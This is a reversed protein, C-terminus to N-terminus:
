QKLRSTTLGACVLCSKWLIVKIARCPRVLFFLPKVTLKDKTGFGTIKFRRTEPFAQMFCNIKMMRAPRAQNWEPDLFVEDGIVAWGLYDAVGDRLAQKLKGDAARVSTSSAPLEVSFLDEKSHKLLDTQFVRLYAYSWGVQKGSRDNTPIRYFRAHHITSGIAAFGGRVPAYVADKEKSGNFSEPSTAMFEVIDNAGLRRGHVCIERNPNKPLGIAPEYDPLSTLATWLAPTSAKDISFSSMESGLKIRFMRHVTDDHCKSNGLRLRVPSTVVVRDNKMAECLLNTLVPMQNDRWHEYLPASESGGCYTKWRRFGGNGKESGVGEDLEERRLASRELLVMAVAPRMLAVIAADVAHHRRDLRTKAQAGGIWPLRKEAGSAKRAESTVWGKFLQIRQFAAMDNSDGDSAASAPYEFYGRIQAALERAMWAVSEISRTDLPEDEERQM